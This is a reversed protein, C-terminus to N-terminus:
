KDICPVCEKRGYWVWSLFKLSIKETSEWWSMHFCITPVEKFNQQQGLFLRFHLSLASNLFLHLLYHRPCTKFSLSFQGFSSPSLVSPMRLLPFVCACAHPLLAPQHVPLFQQRSCRCSIFSFSSAFGAWTSGQFGDLSSISPECWLVLYRLFPACLPSFNIWIHPSPMDFPPSNVGSDGM